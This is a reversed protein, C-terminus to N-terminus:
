SVLQENNLLADCVRVPTDGFMMTPRGAINEYTLGGGASVGARMQRKLFRKLTRNMYFARSGHHDPIIEEADGMLAILDAASAGSLDSIDINCIRVAYRYDM